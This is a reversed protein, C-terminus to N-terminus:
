EVATYNHVLEESTLHFYQYYYKMLNNYIQILLMLMIDIVTSGLVINPIGKCSIILQQQTKFFLVAMCKKGIPNEIRIAHNKLFM